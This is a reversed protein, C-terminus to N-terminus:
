NSGCILEVLSDLNSLDLYSLLTNDCWVSALISNHTLDISSIPNFEFHFEFLNHNQTVNISDISNHAIDLYSLNFNNTVDINTLQNEPCGLVELAINSSVDLINLSNESCELYYLNTLNTLNLNTLNNGQCELYEISDPLILQILNNVRTLLNKLHFNQSLDLYTLSNDGCDLQSLALFDEIGTLDSINQYNVSLSTVTNINGTLVSDNLMIGDGMGNAELYFEFNDDPVYTKQGFGILPLCLLILLLKKM